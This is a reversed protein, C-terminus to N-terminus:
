LESADLIAKVGDRVRQMEDKGYGWLGGDCIWEPWPGFHRMNIERIEGSIYKAFHKVLDRLTGGDSWGDWERLRVLIDKRSYRDVFWIERRDDVWFYAFFPNEVLTKRDSNESLFHRGHSGIVKIIENVQCLREGWKYGLDHRPEMNRLSRVHIDQFRVEELSEKIDRYFKYRAKSATEAVIDEKIEQGDIMVPQPDGWKPRDYLTAEYIGM